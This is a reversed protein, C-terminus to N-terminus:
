CMVPRTATAMQEDVFAAFASMTPYQFVRSLPISLGLADRVRSVVQAALLSHGGLHYFNDDAAPTPVRLVESWISAILKENDTIPLRLSRRSEPPTELSSALKPRDVKGSSTRPLTDSFLFRAPTAPTALREIAHSHLEEERVESRAVVFAVVQLEGLIEVACAACEEVSPHRELAREIEELEIRVGRIKIRHDRRGRFELNGDPLWRGLDGTHYSRAAGQESTFSAATEKPRKFYGPALYPGSICIEGTIGIPCLNGDADIVRVCRGPIPQGIPVAGAGPENWVTHHTALICETPGYLNVVEMHAGFSSRWREVLKGSLSQGALLLHTLHTLARRGDAWRVMERCFSPVTQFVSIQRRELWDVV